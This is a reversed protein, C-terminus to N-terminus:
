EYKTWDFDEIEEDDSIFDAKQVTEDKKKM